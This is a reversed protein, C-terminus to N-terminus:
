PQELVRMTEQVVREAGLQCLHDDDRDLPKSDAIVACSGPSEEGCFAARLPVPIIRHVHNAVFEDFANIVFENRRDYEAAPFSLEAVKRGTAWRHQLNYRYLDCGIEPVPYVLLTKFTSSAVRPLSFFSSM